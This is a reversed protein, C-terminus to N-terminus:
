PRYQESPEATMVPKAKSSAKAAAKTQQEKLVRGRALMAKAAAVKAAAGVGPTKAGAKPVPVVGPAGHGSVPVHTEVAPVLPPAAVADAAPADGAGALSTGAQM